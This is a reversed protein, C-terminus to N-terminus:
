QYGKSSPENVTPMMSSLRIRQGLRPSIVVLGGAVRCLGKNNLHDLLESPSLCLSKRKMSTQHAARDWRQRPTPSIPVPAATKSDVFFNRILTPLVWGDEHDVVTKAQPFVTYGDRGSALFSKTAVKYTKELDILRESGGAQHAVKHGTPHVGGDEGKGRSTTMM